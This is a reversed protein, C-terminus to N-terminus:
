GLFERALRNVLGGDVEDKHDKMIQGMVRGVNKAGSIGLDAIVKQVLDRTATEDLKKPLWRSFYEVEFRLVDALDQGREGTGEYEKLAKSMKKAYAQVIQLYLADDVEGSFGPSAKVMSVETEVQRLANRRREDKQRMADKLEARLEDRIGM